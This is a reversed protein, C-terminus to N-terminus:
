FNGYHLLMREYSKPYESNGPIERFELCKAYNLRKTTERYFCMTANVLIVTKKIKKISKIAISIEAGGGKQSLHKTNTPTVKKKKKIM